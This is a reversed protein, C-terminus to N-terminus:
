VSTLSGFEWVKRFGGRIGFFCLALTDDALLVLSFVGTAGSTTTRLFNAAQAEAEKRTPINQPHKLCELLHPTIHRAAKTHPAPFRLTM